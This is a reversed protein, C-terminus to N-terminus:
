VHEDNQETCYLLEQISGHLATLRMEKESYPFYMCMDAGPSVINFKPDFM